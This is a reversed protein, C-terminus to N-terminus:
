VCPQGCAVSIQPKHYTLARTILWSHRVPDLQDVSDFVVARTGDTRDWAPFTQTFESIVSTQCHVFLAFRGSQPIGLRITTGSKTQSTLYAPQGWRLTEEIQGIGSLTEATEFILNRLTLLGDRAVSDTVDFAAEVQPTSFPRTM